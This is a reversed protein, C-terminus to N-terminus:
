DPVPLQRQQGIGDAVCRLAPIQVEAGFEWIYNQSVRESPDILGNHNLDCFYDHWKAGPLSAPAWGSTDGDLRKLNSSTIGDGTENGPVAFNGNVQGDVAIGIVAGVGTTGSAKGIAYSNGVAGNNRGVLGGVADVGEVISMSYSNRV